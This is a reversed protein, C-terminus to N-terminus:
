TDKKQAKDDTILSEHEMFDLNAKFIQNNKQVRSTKHNFKRMLM